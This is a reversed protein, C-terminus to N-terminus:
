DDDGDDWDDDADDWDDNKEYDAEMVKGTVADVEFEYEVGNAIFELEYVGDDLDYEHETFEASELGVQALVIEKAKEETIYGDERYDDNDVTMAKSGIGCKDVTIRVEEAMDELFEDGPYQSGEKLKLVINKSKGSVTEEFYGEEYIEEVLEGVIDKCEEGEAKTFKKLVKTGDDNIGKLNVVEGEKNYDIEVEPNISLLVTGAVKNDETNEQNAKAGCGGLIMAGCMVAMAAAWKNKRMTKKM